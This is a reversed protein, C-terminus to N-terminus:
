RPPEMRVMKDAKLADFDLLEADAADRRVVSASPQSFRNSATGSGSGRGSGSGHGSQSTQSDDMMEDTEGHDSSEDLDMADGGRSRGRGKGRATRDALLPLRVEELQARTLMAHRAARLRELENQRTLIEKEAAHVEQTAAKLAKRAEDKAKEFEAQSADVQLCVCVLM